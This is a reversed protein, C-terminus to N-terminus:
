KSLRKKLSSLKGSGPAAREFDNKIDEFDALSFRSNNKLEIKNRIDLLVDITM